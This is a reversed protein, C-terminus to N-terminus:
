KGVLIWERKYRDRGPKVKEAQKFLGLRGGQCGAARLGYQTLRGMHKFLPM